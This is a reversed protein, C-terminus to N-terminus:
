DLSRIDVDAFVEVFVHNEGAAAGHEIAQRVTELTLDYGQSRRTALDPDDSVAVALVGDPLACRRQSGEARELARPDGLLFVFLM